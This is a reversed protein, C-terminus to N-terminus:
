LTMAGTGAWSLRQLAVCEGSRGTCHQPILHSRNPARLETHPYSLRVSLIFGTGPDHIECDMPHTTVEAIGPSPSPHDIEPSFPLETM